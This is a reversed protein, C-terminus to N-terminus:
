EEPSAEPLRPLDLIVVGRCAWCIPPALLMIGAPMRDDHFAPACGFPLGHLMGAPTLEVLTGCLVCPKPPM